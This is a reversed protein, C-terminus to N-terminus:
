SEQDLQLRAELTVINNRMEKATERSIRDAEFMEQILEREIQFGKAAVELIISRKPGTFMLGDPKELHNKRAVAAIEYLSILHDVEESNEETKMAKLKDLVFEGNIEVLKEFAEEDPPCGARRKEHFLHLIVWLSKQWVGTRTKRTFMKSRYQSREIFYLACAKNVTGNEIMALTNEKEWLFTQMLLEREAKNEKHLLKASQPGSGRRYYDRLVIETAMRTEGTAQLLLEQIVRKVIESLAEQEEESRSEETKREAVFPLIFNTTLLSIVIIGYAILIILDRGPFIRGDPLVAPISMVCALTVAGRAGALSFILGSKVKGMSHEADQYSKPSILLIWWVFRLLMTFLMLALTCGAVHWGDMLHFGGGMSKLIGPLQTGLMVFVLGDMSFSLVNWVSEQAIHLKVKEPNFKDQTVSRAIGAAFVALIGSVSLIEAAMYIVFPSLVSILIHLTINEMGLSHLWEVLINALSILVLGVLLGGFATLLFHGTAKVPSFAGTIMAAIAFQFSVIGSADNICSEGSLIGKIKHPLHVRKEVAEVAVADTPGLAGALAFAAALPIAPIMMHVFYGAAFVTVFVLLVASSIIPSRMKWMTKKDATFSTYYILPSILLVMFLEPEFEFQLAFAGFPILAISIGLLIQVVPTSLFPLFRSILNSLLVAALLILVYEFTPM